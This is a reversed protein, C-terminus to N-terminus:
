CLIFFIRQLRVGDGKRFAQPEFGLRHKLSQIVAVRSERRNQCLLDTKPTLYIRIKRYTLKSVLLDEGQKTRHLFSNQLDNTGSIKM